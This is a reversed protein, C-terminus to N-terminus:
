PRACVGVGISRHTVPGCKDHHEYQSSKAQVEIGDFKRLFLRVLSLVGGVLLHQEEVLFGEGPEGDFGVPLFEDESPSSFLAPHHGRGETGFGILPLYLIQDPGQDCAGHGAGDLIVRNVQNGKSEVVRHRGDGDCGAVVLSCSGAGRRFTM